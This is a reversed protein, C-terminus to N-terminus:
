GKENKNKFNEFEENEKRYKEKMKKLERSNIQIAWTIILVFLIIPLVNVVFNDHTQVWGKISRYFIIFSMIIAIMFVGKAVLIKDQLTKKNKDSGIM